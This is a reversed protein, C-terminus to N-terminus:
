LASQRSHATFGPGGHSAVGSEAVHVKNQGHLHEPCTERQVETGLQRHIVRRHVRTPPHKSHPTGGTRPALQRVSPSRDRRTSKNSQSGLFTNCETTTEVKDCQDGFFFPMSADTPWASQRTKRAGTGECARQGNWGGAGQHPPHNHELDPLDTQPAAVIKVKSPTFKQAVCFFFPAPTVAVRVVAEFGSERSEAIRFSRLDM